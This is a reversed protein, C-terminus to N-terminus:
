EADEEPLTVTIGMTTFNEVTTESMVANNRFAAAAVQTALDSFRTLTSEVKMCGGSDCIKMQMWGDDRRKGSRERRTSYYRLDVRNIDEWRVRRGFPGDFEVAEPLMRVITSQYIYTRVAYSIFILLLLGIITAWVPSEAAFFFWVGFFVIGALARLYDAYLTNMPYRMEM